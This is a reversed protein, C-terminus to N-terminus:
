EHARSRKMAYMRRDAELLLDTIDAGGATHMGMSASLRVPGESAANHRAIAEDVKVAVRRAGEEDTGPMLVVFEDGGYRAVIDTERCSEGLLAALERLLRDGVQHGHNDNVKKMDDLDLFLISVVGGNRRVEKTTRELTLELYSRNYVRTLGDLVAMRDREQILRQNDLAITAHIAFARFLTKEDECFHRASDYFVALAGHTGRYSQLPAALFARYGGEDALHADISGEAAVDDIARTDGDLVAQGFLSYALPVVFLQKFKDGLGFVEKAVLVDGRV